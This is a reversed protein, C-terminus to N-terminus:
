PTTNLEPADAPRMIWTPLDGETLEGICALALGRSALWAELHPWVVPHVLLQRVNPEPARESEQRDAAPREDTRCGCGWNHSEPTPCHVDHEIGVECAPCDRAGEATLRADKEDLAETPLAHDHPTPVTPM